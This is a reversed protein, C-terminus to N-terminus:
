KQEKNIRRIEKILKLRDNERNAISNLYTKAQQEKSVVLVDQAIYQEITDSLLVNELIAVVHFEGDNNMRVAIETDKATNSFRIIESFNLDLNQNAILNTLDIRDEGLTFDLIIDTGTFATEADFVFVDKGWEGELRDRICM